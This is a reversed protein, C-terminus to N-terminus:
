EMEDFTGSYAFLLDGSVFNNKSLIMCKEFRELASTNLLTRFRTKSIMGVRITKGGSELYFNYVASDDTCRLAKLMIVQYKKVNPIRVVVAPYRMNPVETYPKSIGAFDSKITNDKTEFIVPKKVVSVFGDTAEEKVKEAIHPNVAVDTHVFSM